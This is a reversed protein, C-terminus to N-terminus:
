FYLVFTDNIRCSTQRLLNAQSSEEPVTTKNRTKKSKRFGEWVTVPLCQKYKSPCALCVIPPFIMHKKLTWYGLVLMKDYDNDPAKIDQCSCNVNENKYPPSALGSPPQEVPFISYKGAESTLSKQSKKKKKEKKKWLFSCPEVALATAQNIYITRPPRMYGESHSVIYLKLHVGSHMM